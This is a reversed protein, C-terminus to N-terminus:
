AIRVLGYEKENIAILDYGSYKGDEEIMFYGSFVDKGMLFGKGWVWAHGYVKMHGSVWVDGWVRAYQSVFADCTVCSKEWVMAEDGIWCDGAHSLNSESGVWGGLDGKKVNGFDKLAVIRSLMYGNRWRTEKTLKYKGM